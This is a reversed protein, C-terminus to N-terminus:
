RGAMRSADVPFLSPSCLLTASFVSDGSLRTKLKCLIQTILAITLMKAKGATNSTIRGM